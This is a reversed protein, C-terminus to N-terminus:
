SGAERAWAPDHALATKFVAYTPPLDLRAAIADRENADTALAFVCSGSGALLPRHAGAAALAEAARRIEVNEMALKHFDNSLSERVREFDGRQLAAACRLSMSDNRPRTERAHADLAAYAEATSVSAPPKVVLVSWDPIAGLATVREGIGEVLAATKALFFPVDSGLSRAIALWDLAPLAGFLGEAAATLMAAADSSGGGLGAKMPINKTLTVRARVASGSASSIAQLARLALNEVGDLEAVSCSFELRDCPEVDIADALALPAM